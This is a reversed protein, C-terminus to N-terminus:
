NILGCDTFGCGTDYYRGRFTIEDGAQLLAVSEAFEERFEVSFSVKINGGQVMCTVRTKDFDYDGYIVTATMTYYEGGVIEDSDSHERVVELYSLDTPNGKFLSPRDVSPNDCNVCYRHVVSPATSGQPQFSFIKGIEEHECKPPTFIVLLLLVAVICTTLVSMIYKM